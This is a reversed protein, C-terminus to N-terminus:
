FKGWSHGSQNKTIGVIRKRGMLFKDIFSALYLSIHIGKLMASAEYTTLNQRLAAWVEPEDDKPSAM